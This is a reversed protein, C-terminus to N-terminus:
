DSLVAGLKSLYVVKLGLEGARKIEKLTGKSKEYDPLVWVEDSVELWAISYDYYDQVTIEEGERLMLHLQFDAWPCFPAHGELLVKTSARMGKRINDLIEIVNKGSYAGAVYIKKM